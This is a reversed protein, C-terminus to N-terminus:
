TQDDWPMSAQGDDTDRRPRAHRTALGSGTVSLRIGTRYRTHNLRRTPYGRRELERGFATATKVYERAEEAWARYVGYLDPFPVEYAPAVECCDRFFAGIVDAEERYSATAAIIEVTPQLGRRFWEVAGSVMWALIGAAEDRVLRDDFDAIRDEEPVTVLFPILRLRRWIGEDTGRVDPKANAAAWLKFAPAIEREREYLHRVTITSDGTIQKILAEDWRRGEESESSKVFRKRDLRALDDRPGSRGRQALFTEFSAHAHYDTGLIASVTDLFTSKGNAGYGYCVHLVQESTLATLSYGVARQLYAILEGNGGFTRDLFALWQPCEATADYRTPCRQTILDDRQHPRLTGTRLDVIGNPCCLLTPHTDWASVPTAITPDSEALSLMAWLKAHTEWKALDTAARAIREKEATDTAEALQRRLVDRVHRVCDKAREQIAGVQDRAWRTGDWLYWAKQDATYRVSQGYLDRFLDAHGLDTQPYILPDIV